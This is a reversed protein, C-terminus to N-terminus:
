SVLIRMIETALKRQCLSGFMNKNNNQNNNNNNNNDTTFEKEM